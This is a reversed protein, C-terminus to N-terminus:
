RAAVQRSRIEVNSVSFAVLGRQHRRKATMRLRMEKRENRGGCERARTSGVHTEFCFEGREGFWVGASIDRVRESLLNIKAVLKCALM